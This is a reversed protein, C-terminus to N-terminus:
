PKMFNRVVNRLCNLLHIFNFLSFAVFNLCFDFIRCFESLFGNYIYIYIYSNDLPITNSLTEHSNMNIIKFIYIYIYIYIYNDLPITNSLTEHSNM